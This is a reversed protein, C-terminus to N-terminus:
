LGTPLEAWKLAVVTYYMGNAVPQWVFQYTEGDITETVPTPRGSFAQSHWYWGRAAVAMPLNQQDVWVWGKGQQQPSSPNPAYPSQLQFRNFM